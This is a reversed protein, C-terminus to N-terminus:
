RLPANKEFIIFRHHHGNDKISDTPDAANHDFYSYMGALDDVTCYTDNTEDQLWTLLANDPLASM